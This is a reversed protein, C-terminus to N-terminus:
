LSPVSQRCGSLPVPEYEPNQTTNVHRVVEVPCSGLSARVSAENSFGHTCHEMRHRAVCITLNLKSSPVRLWACDSNVWSEAISFTEFFSLTDQWVPSLEIRPLPLFVQESLGTAFININSGLPLSDKKNFM